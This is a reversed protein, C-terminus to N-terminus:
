LALIPTYATAGSVTENLVTEGAQVWSHASFPELTVGVVLTSPLRRASLFTVLAMSDLLCSRAAPVYRRALLFTAAADSTRRIVHDDSTAPAERVHIDRHRALHVLAAKLGLSRLRRRAGLVGKCVAFVSGLTCTANDFPDEVASRAAPMPKAQVLPHECAGDVLIGEQVLRHVADRDAELRDAIAIVSQELEDGLRFYRDREIDLFVLHNSIRCCHLNSALKYPVADARVFFPRM